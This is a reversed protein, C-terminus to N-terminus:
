DQQESTEASNIQEEDSKKRQPKGLGQVWQLIKKAQDIVSGPPKAPPAFAPRGTLRGYVYQMIIRISAVLPPAIIIGVLGAFSGGWIVALIVVAPHLKLNEGVIRPVLVISELQQMVLWIVSVIAVVTLHNLDPLTSSGSVLALAAAVVLAIAPGIQPIFEVIFAVFALFLPNPLGLTTAIVWMAFGMIFGLTFNGRVYGDWVGGLENLLRQADEQYGDPATHIINEAMAGGSALFSALITIFFLSSFILGIASGAISAVSGLVSTTLDGGVSFIQQITERDLSLNQSVSILWNNLDTDTFGQQELFQGVYTSISIPDGETDQLVPELIPQPQTVLENLLNYLSGLGNTTQSILPPALVVFILLIVVLFSIFTLLIAWGRGGFTVRDQYFDTLPDLLYAIIATTLAFPIVPWFLIALLVLAIAFGVTILTTTTQNWAPASSFQGEHPIVEENTEDSM